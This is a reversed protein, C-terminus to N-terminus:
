WGCNPSPLGGGQAGWSFGNTFVCGLQWTGSAGGHISTVWGLCTTASWGDDVEISDRYKDPIIGSCVKHTGTLAQTTESVHEDQESMAGPDHGDAPVTTCASALMTIAVLCRIDFRVTKMAAGSLTMTASLGLAIGTGVELARRGWSKTAPSHELLSLREDSCPQARGSVTDSTLSPAVGGTPEEISGVALELVATTARRVLGADERETAGPSIM